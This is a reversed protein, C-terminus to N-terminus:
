LIAEPLLSALRPPPRGLARWTKSERLCRSVYLHALLPDLAVEQALSLVVVNTFTHFSLFCSDKTKSLMPSHDNAHQRQKRAHPPSFRPPCPHAHRIGVRASAWPRTSCPLFSLIQQYTDLLVSSLNDQRKTVSIDTTMPITVPLFCTHSTIDHSPMNQLDHRIIRASKLSTPPTRTSPLQLCNPPM